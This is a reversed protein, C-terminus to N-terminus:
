AMRTKDLRECAYKGTKEIFNKQDNDNRVSISEEKQAM